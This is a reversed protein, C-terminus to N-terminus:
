RPLAKVARLIERVRKASLKTAATERLARLHDQFAPELGASVGPLLAELAAIADSRAGFFEPCAGGRSRWIGLTSALQGLTRQAAERITEM